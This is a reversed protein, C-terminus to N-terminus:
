MDCLTLHSRTPNRSLSRARTRRRRRLDWEEQAPPRPDVIGAVWTNEKKGSQNRSIREILGPVIQHVRLDPLVVRVVQHEELGDGPLDNADPLLKPECVGRAALLPDVLPDIKPKQTEM